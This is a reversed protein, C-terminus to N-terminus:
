DLFPCLIHWNGRSELSFFACNNYKNNLVNDKFLAISFFVQTGFFVGLLSFM